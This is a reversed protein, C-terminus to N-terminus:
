RIIAREPLSLGCRQWRPFINMLYFLGPLDDYMGVFVPVCPHQHRTLVITIVEDIELRFVALKGIGAMKSERKRPSIVGQIMRCAIRHQYETLLVVVPASTALAGRYVHSVGPEAAGPLGPRIYKDRGPKDRMLLPVDSEVPNFGLAREVADHTSEGDITM